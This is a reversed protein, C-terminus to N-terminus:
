FIDLSNVLLDDMYRLRLEFNLYLVTKELARGGDQKSKVTQCSDYFHRSDYVGITYNILCFLLKSINEKFSGRPQFAELM